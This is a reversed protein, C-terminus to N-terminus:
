LAPPPGFIVITVGDRPAAPRVGGDVRVPRAGGPVLAASPAALRSVGRRRLQRAARQSAPYTDLDGTMVTKPMSLRHAPADGIEVAWMQRRITALDEADTIEEH